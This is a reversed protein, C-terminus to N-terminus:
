PAASTQWVGSSTGLVDDAALVPVAPDLALLHRAVAVLRVDRGVRGGLGEDGSFSKSRCSASPPRARRRGRPFAARAGRSRSRSGTGARAAGAEELRDGALPQLRVHEDHADLRVLAHRQRNPALTGPAPIVMRGTCM